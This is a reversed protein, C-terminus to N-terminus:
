KKLICLILLWKGLEHTGDRFIRKFTLSNYRFKLYLIDPVFFTMIALDTLVTILHAELDSPKTNLNKFVLIWIYREHPLKQLSIEWSKLIEKFLQIQLLIKPKYSCKLESSRGKFNKARGRGAILASPLLLLIGRFANHIICYNCSVRKLIKSFIYNVFIHGSWNNKKKKKKKRWFFSFRLSKHGQQYCLFSKTFYKM